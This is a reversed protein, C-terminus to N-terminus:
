DFSSLVGTVKVNRFKLGDSYNHGAGSSGGGAIPRIKERGSWWFVTL